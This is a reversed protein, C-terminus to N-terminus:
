NFDFSRFAQQNQPKSLSTKDIYETVCGRGTNDFASLLDSNDCGVELISWGASKRVLDLVADAQLARNRPNAMFRM